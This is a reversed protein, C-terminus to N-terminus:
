GWGPLPEFSIEADESIDVVCRCSGHFPPFTFSAPADEMDSLKGAWPHLEKVREPTDAEDLAAMVKSAHQVQVNKGDMFVCRSCTKEDGAAVIVYNTVGIQAMQGIQGRVRANGAVNAALMEFYSSPKNLGVIDGLGLREVLKAELLAGAESRGLGTEFMADTVIADISESLGSDYFEDIWNLQGDILADIAREDRLTFGAEILPDKPGKAVKKTRSLARTLIERKGEIYATRTTSGVPASVDRQLKKFPAALARLVAEKGAGGRFTAVGRSVAAQARETWATLLASRLRNELGMFMADATAGAAKALITDVTLLRSFDESRM